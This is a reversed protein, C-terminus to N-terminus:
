AYAWNSTVATWGGSSRSECTTSTRKLALTGCSNSTDACTRTLKRPSRRTTSLTNNGSIMPWVARWCAERAYQRLTELLQYRAVGATPLDAVVLSQDVLRVLLHLMDRGPIDAGTCVREAAELTWGGAFVSLRQLLRRQREELLDYSWDVMAQLTQHRPFADRTGSTLLSFRDELHDAMQELSLGSVLPAALEIALPIGDLRRARM